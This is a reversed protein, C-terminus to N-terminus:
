LSTPGIAGEPPRVKAAASQRRRPRCLLATSQAKGDAGEEWEAPTARWGVRWFWNWAHPHRQQEHQGRQQQAAAAAPRRALSPVGEWSVLLLCCGGAGVLQACGDTLVVLDRLPARSTRPAPHGPSCAASGAPEARRQQRHKGTSCLTCQQLTARVHRNRWEMRQLIRSSPMGSFTRRTNLLLCVAGRLPRGLPLMPPEGPVGCASSVAQWGRGQVRCHHIEIEFMGNMLEAAAATQLARSFRPCAAAHAARSGHPRLPPPPPPGILAYGKSRSKRRSQFVPLDRKFVVPLKSFSPCCRLGAAISSAHTGPGSFASQASEHPTLHAPFLLRQRPLTAAARAAARRRECWGARGGSSEAGATVKGAWLVWGCAAAQVRCSGLKCGTTQAAPHAVGAGTRHQQRGGAWLWQVAAGVAVASGDDFVRGQAAMMPGSGAAGRRRATAPGSSSHACRRCAGPSGRKKAAAGSMATLKALHARPIRQPLPRCPQAAATCRGLLVALRLASQRNGCVHCDKGHQVAGDNRRGQRGAQVRGAGEDEPPTLLHQGRKRGGNGCRHDCVHLHFLPRVWSLSAAGLELRLEAPMRRFIEASSGRPPKSHGGGSGQLRKSAAGRGHLCTCCRAGSAAGGKGRAGAGQCGGSLSQGALRGVCTSPQIQLRPLRSCIGSM